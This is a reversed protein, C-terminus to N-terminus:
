TEAYMVTLRWGLSSLETSSVKYRRGLNDNIVDFANIIAGPFSPLLIQYWPARVDGVLGVDSKEGKTGAMLWAPWQTLISVESAVDDGGYPQAGFGSNSAPRLVDVVVNCAMCVIPQLSGMGAVFYTATGNVLYDGVDVLTGDFLGYKEPHGYLSPVQFKYNPKDDFAAIIHQVLNQPAIPNVASSARYQSYSSGLRQAAKFYGKWVKAQIAVANVM